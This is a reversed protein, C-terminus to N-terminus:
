TDAELIFSVKQTM